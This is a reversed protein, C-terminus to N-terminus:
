GQAHIIEERIESVMQHLVFINHLSLIHWGLMENERLLHHIYARSYQRSLANKAEPWLPRHDTRYCANRLHLNGEPHYAVGHRGLRTPMVCDFMDFGQEIAFRMTEMDGIGMLYRPVQYPLKSWCFATIQQILERSEGVSVGGVAIGDTAYPSLYDISEQRLSLSTGGQVIPFLVGRVQDRISQYHTYQRTARRHTQAMQRAYVKDDSGGPSCVDLMMMIDSWLACQIDVCDEPSMFHRTGDLPSAFKIGEETIKIPRFHGGSTNGKQSISNQIAWEPNQKAKEAEKAKLGLSFVQFGGSDTLVLGPWQMFQQIGWAAQVLEHGPRLSLHYTNSLMIMLPELEGLYEPSRLLELFIGKISAKTGVPMFVPTKVQIGNLTILGARAHGRSAQIDFQLKQWSAVM